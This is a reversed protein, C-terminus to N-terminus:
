KKNKINVNRFAPLTHKLEQFDVVKLLGVMQIAVLFRSFLWCSPHIPAPLAYALKESFISSNEGFFVDRAMACPMAAENSM